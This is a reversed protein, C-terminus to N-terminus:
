WAPLQTLPNKGLIGFQIQQQLEQNGLVNLKEDVKTLSTFVSIIQPPKDGWESLWKFVILVCMYGFLGGLFLFQPIVECIFDLASKFYVANFGKLIIGFLMQLVGLIIAVKMKYSNMFPIDNGAEYWIWDIGFPYTCDPKKIYHAHLKIGAQTQEPIYTYCSEFLVLPISAFDNYVVGNYTSFFGLMTIMYRLSNLAGYVGGRKSFDDSRLLLYIGFGLMILGHCADGFMVGFLFPFSGATFPAPNIEKYKPIAYTEVIQQFPATFENLDFKSPPKGRNKDKVVSIIPQVLGSKTACYDMLKNLIGQKEDLDIWIKLSYLENQPELSAMAKYIM